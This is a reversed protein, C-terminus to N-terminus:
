FALTEFLILGGVTASVALIGAAIARQDSGTADSLKRLLNTM